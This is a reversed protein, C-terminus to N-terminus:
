HSFRSACLHRTDTARTKCASVTGHCGWPGAAGAAEPGLRVYPVPGLQERRGAEQAAGVKAEAKPFLVLKALQNLLNPCLTDNAQTKSM